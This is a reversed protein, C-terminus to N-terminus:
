LDLDGEVVDLPDVGDLLVDDAGEVQEEGMAGESLLHSPRRPSPQEELPEWSGPLCVHGFRHGALGADREQEHGRGRELRHIVASCCALDAGVEARQALGGSAVATGDAEDLLDVGDRHGPSAHGGYGSRTVGTM